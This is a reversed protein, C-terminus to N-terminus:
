QIAGIPGCAALKESRKLDRRLGANRSRKKGVHWFGCFNCSYATYPAKNKRHMRKAAIRATLADLLKVKHGCQRDQVTSM